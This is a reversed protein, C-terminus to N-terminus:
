NDLQFYLDESEINRDVSVSDICPNLSDRDTVVWFKMYDSISIKYKYDPNDEHIYEMEVSGFDFDSKKIEFNGKSDTTTYSVVKDEKTHRYLSQKVVKKWVSHTDVELFYYYIGSLLYKGEDNSGDYKVEHMGYDLTDNILTAVINTTDLTTVYLKTLKKGNVYFNITSTDGAESGNLAWENHYNGLSDQIDYKITYTIKADSVPKGDKDVVKGLIVSKTDPESMYKECSIFISVILVLIMMRFKM